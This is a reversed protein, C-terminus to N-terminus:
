TCPKVDRRQHAVIIVIIITIGISLNGDLPDPCESAESAEPAQAAERSRM